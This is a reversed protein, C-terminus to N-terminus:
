NLFVRSSKSDFLLNLLVLIGFCLLHNLIKKYVLCILKRPSFKIPSTPIKRCYSTHSRCNLSDDALREQM